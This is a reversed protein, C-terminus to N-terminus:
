VSRMAFVTAIGATVFIMTAFLSRLSLRGIGCVGHGSTCGRGLYTGAGVLIGAAVAEGLEPMWGGAVSPRFCRFLLGVGVLGAVFAISPARQGDDGSRLARAYMGSVGAVRGNLLMLLSAASGILVGGIAAPLPTFDTIVM